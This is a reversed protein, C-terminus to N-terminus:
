TSSYPDCRSTRGRWLYRYRIILPPFSFFFFFSKDVKSNQRKYALGTHLLLMIAMKGESDPQGRVIEMSEFQLYDTHVGFSVDITLQLDTGHNIEIQRHLRM